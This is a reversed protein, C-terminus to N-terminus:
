NLTKYYKLRHSIDLQNELEFLDLELKDRCTLPDCLFGDVHSCGRTKYVKCWHIPDNSRKFKNMLINYRLQLEILSNIVINTNKDPESM